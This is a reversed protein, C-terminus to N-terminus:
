DSQTQDFFYKFLYHRLYVAAATMTDHCTMECGPLNSIMATSGIWWQSAPTNKDDQNLLLSQFMVDSVKHKIQLAVDQESSHSECIHGNYEKTSIVSM